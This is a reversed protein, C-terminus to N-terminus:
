SPISDTCCGSIICIDNEEKVVTRLRVHQSSAEREPTRYGQRARAVQEDRRRTAAHLRAPDVCDGLM